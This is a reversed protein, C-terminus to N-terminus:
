YESLKRKTSMKKGDEIIYMYGWKKGVQDSLIGVIYTYYLQRRWRIV